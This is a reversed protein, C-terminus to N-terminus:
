IVITIVHLKLHALTQKIEDDYNPNMIFIFEPQYDPLQEPAIILQGSGPIYRNQKGPNIDVVIPITDLSPKLTNLFTVGKAGAGWIAAKQDKEEIQQVHYKLQAYKQEYSSVFRQVLASTEHPTDLTDPISGMGYTPKAELWMYQGEFAPTVRLVDFGHRAFLRAISGPSFLSCHEYFFDWFSVHELIWRVDPTEFFVIADLNNGIARRMGGVLKDLNPVHEILHRAVFCDAADDTYKDSYFDAVFRVRGDLATMAGSHSPDYGTGTNKGQECLQILFDGKGHGIEVIHKQHLDYRSVLMDAISAVYNQFVPSCVQVNNYDKTYIDLTEDFAINTIFGCKSCWALIVDGKPTQYAADRTPKPTNQQIPVDHLEYFTQLEAAGCAPCHQKM